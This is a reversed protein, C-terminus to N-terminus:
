SMVQESNHNAIFCDVSDNIVKNIASPTYGEKIANAVWPRLYYQLFILGQFGSITLLREVETTIQALPNANM